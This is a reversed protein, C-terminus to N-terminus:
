CMEGALKSATFALPPCARRRFAVRDCAGFGDAEREERRDLRIGFEGVGADEPRKGESGVERLDIVKGRRGLVRPGVDALGEVRERGPGAVAEDRGDDHGVPAHVEGAARRGFLRGFDQRRAADPDVRDADPARLGGVAQAVHRDAVQTGGAADEGPVPGRDAADDRGHAQGPPGDLKREGHVPFGDFLPTKVGM